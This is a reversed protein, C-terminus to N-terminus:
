FGNVEGFLDLPQSSFGYMPASPAQHLPYQVLNTSFYDAKTTFPIIMSNNIFSTNKKDWIM